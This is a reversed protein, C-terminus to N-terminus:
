PVSLGRSHRGLLWFYPAAPDAAEADYGTFFYRVQGFDREATEILNHMDVARLWARVEDSSSGARDPRSRVGQATLLDSNTVVIALSCQRTRAGFRSLQTVLLHYALEAQAESTGDPPRKGGDADHARASGALVIRDRVSPITTPDLVLLHRRTMSFHGLAPDHAENLFHGGGADALHLYRRQPAGGRLTLQVPEATPAPRGEPWQSLLDLTNRLWSGTLTDAPEWDAPLDTRAAMSVTAWMLLQTKGVGPGGSLAIRADTVCGALDFLLKGCSPCLPTLTRGARLIMTPLRIGCRCRHWLVGLRGPRLDRHVVDCTGGPCHYAPWWTVWRCAPCTAAMGHWWRVSSDGTRLAVILALRVLRPFATVVEVAVALAAWGTWVGMAVAVLFATPPLAMPLAVALVFWWEGVTRRARTWIALVRQWPWVAAAAIDREVQGALYGPWGDDWFPYPAGPRRARPRPGNDPADCPRTLFREDALGAYVRLYGLAALTAGTALGAALAILSLPVAFFVLILWCLTLWAVFALFWGLAETM